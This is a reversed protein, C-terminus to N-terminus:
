LSNAAPKATIRIYTNGCNRNHEVRTSLLEYFGAGRCHHISLEQSRAPTKPTSYQRLRGLDQLQRRRKEEEEESIDVLGDFALRNVRSPCCATPISLLRSLAFMAPLPLSSSPIIPFSSFAFPRCLL